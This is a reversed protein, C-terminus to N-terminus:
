LCVSLNHLAAKGHCCHNRSRAEINGKYTVAQGTNVIMPKLWTGEIKSCSVGNTANSLTGDQLRKRLLNQLLDSVAHWEPM